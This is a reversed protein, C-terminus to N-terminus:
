KPSPAPPPGSAPAKAGPASADAAAALALSFDMQGNRIPAQASEIGDKTDVNCDPDYRAELVLEAAEPVVTGMLNDREDVAFRLVRLEGANAWATDNMPYRKSYSPIVHARGVEEKKWVNVFVCGETASALKGRLTIKGAFRTSHPYAPMPAPAAPKTTAAAPKAGPAIREPEDGCATFACLIALSGLTTVLLRTM